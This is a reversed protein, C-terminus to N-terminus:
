PKKCEMYIKFNFKRTGFIKVPNPNPISNCGIKLVLIFNLSPIYIYICMCVYM